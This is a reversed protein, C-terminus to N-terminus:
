GLDLRLEEFGEMMNSNSPLEPKALNVRFDYRRFTKQYAQMCHMGGISGAGRSLAGERRAM